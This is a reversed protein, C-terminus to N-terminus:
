LGACLTECAQGRPKTIIAEVCKETTRGDYLECHEGFKDGAVRAVGGGGDGPLKTNRAGSDANMNARGSLNETELLRLFL